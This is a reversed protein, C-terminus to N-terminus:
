FQMAIVNKQNNNTATVTTNTQKIIKKGGELNILTPANNPHRPLVIISFM